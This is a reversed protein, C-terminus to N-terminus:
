AVDTSGGPWDGQLDGAATGLHTATELVWRGSQRRPPILEEASGPPGEVPM